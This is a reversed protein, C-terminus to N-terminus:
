FVRLATDEVLGPVALGAGEIMLQRYESDANAEGMGRMLSEMSEAECIFHIRLPNKFVEVAVRVNSLGYRGNIFEAAHKAWEQAKQGNQVGNVTISRDLIVM